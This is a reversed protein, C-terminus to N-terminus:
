RWRALTLAQCEEIKSVAFQFRGIEAAQCALRRKVMGEELLEGELLVEVWRPGLGMGMLLGLEWVRQPALSPVLEQVLERM